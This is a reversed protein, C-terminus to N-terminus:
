QNLYSHNYTHLRIDFKAADNRHLYESSAAQACQNELNSECRAIVNYYDMSGLYPAAENDCTIQYHVKAMPSGCNSAAQNYQSKRVQSRMCDYFMRTGPQAGYEECVARAQAVYPPVTSPYEGGAPEYFGAAEASFQSVMAASLIALALRKGM